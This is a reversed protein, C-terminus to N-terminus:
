SFSNCANVTYLTVITVAVASTMFLLVSLLVPQTNHGMNVFTVTVVTETVLLIGADVCM